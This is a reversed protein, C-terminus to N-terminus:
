EVTLTGEMGQDFHGPIACIVQYTGAPLNVTKTTSEGPAVVEIETEVLDEGFESESEIMTGESLVAWEHEIQGENALTVEVDTDAPITWEDPAFGYETAEVEVATAAQSGGDAADDSGGGCGVVLLLMAVTLGTAVRLHM